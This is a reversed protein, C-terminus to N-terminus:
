LWQRRAEGKLDATTIFGQGKAAQLRRLTEEPFRFAYRAAAATEYSGPKWVGRTSIIWGKRAGVPEWIM